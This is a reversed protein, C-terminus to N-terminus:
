RVAVSFSDGAALSTVNALGSVVVPTHRDLTSGDGLQGSRNHGWAVVTRDSRLGLLHSEGTAMTLLGSLSPAAVPKERNLTTGDAVEGSQNNGWGYPVLQSAGSTQVFGVALVCAAASIVHVAWRRRARM